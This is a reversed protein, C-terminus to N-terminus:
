DKKTRAPYPNQEIYKHVIVPINTVLDRHEIWWVSDMEEHSITNIVFTYADQLHEPIKRRERDFTTLLRDRLQVGWSIQKDTGELAPLDEAEARDQAMKQQQAIYCERCMKSSEQAIKWERERNPGYFQMRATHGCTYTIDYLAM